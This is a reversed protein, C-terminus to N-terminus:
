VKKKFKKPASKLASFQYSKQPFPVRKPVIIPVKLLSWVKKHVKKLMERASNEQFKKPGSKLPNASMWWCSLWWCPYGYPWVMLKANESSLWLDIWLKKMKEPCGYPQVVMLNLTILYCVPTDSLWLTPRGYPQVGMLDSSWLDSSWLTPHGYPRVVM